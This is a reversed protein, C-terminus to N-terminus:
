HARGGTQGQLALWSSQALMHMPMEAHVCASSSSTGTTPTVFPGPTTKFIPKKVDELLAAIAQM